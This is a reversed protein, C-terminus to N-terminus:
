SVTDQRRNTQFVAPAGLCLKLGNGHGAAQELQGLGQALSVKHFDSELRLRTWHMAHRLNQAGHPAHGAANQLGEAENSDFVFVM